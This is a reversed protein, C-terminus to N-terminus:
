QGVGAISAWTRRAVDQWDFGAARETARSSLAALWDQDDIMVNLKEAFAEPSGPDFYVVADRGFEPMPPRDSVLLPRGAGLAELLINPCNECESAFINIKAHRYVAPLEAHPINGVMMVDAQLGLRGVEQRVMEGYPSQNHGVLVLKESTKRMKKLLSYGRVIELQNKYFDLISVYLLYESRPLWDPRSLESNRCASKFDAGLGHPITVTNKLTKGARKEIVKKAYGSIFIVCDASNISKLMAGELLWNRMRMLGWPYRARIAQTFPTMNQFTVVTKCGAPPVTNILCGPCFLIDAGINKLLASLFFKEWVTRLVPNETPWNVSLRKIRPNAPLKLCAPALIFIELNEHGELRQLLNLLYTQGGGRRASFANIVVRM